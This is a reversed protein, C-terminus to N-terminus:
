SRLTSSCDIAFQNDLTELARTAFHAVIVNNDWDTYSTLIIHPLADWETSSYPRIPLYPFKKQFRSLSFTVRMPSYENFMVMQRGQNPIQMMRIGRLSCLNIFTRGM